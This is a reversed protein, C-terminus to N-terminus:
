AMGVRLTPQPENTILVVFSSVYQRSSDRTSNRVKLDIECSAIKIQRFRESLQLARLDAAVWLLELESLSYAVKEIQPYSMGSACLAAAIAGSSSGSAAEAEIGTEGLAPLVGLHMFGRVGGGGFAIGARPPAADTRPRAVAGAEEVPLM